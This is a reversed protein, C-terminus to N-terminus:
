PCTLDTYAQRPDTKPLNFTAAEIPTYHQRLVAPLSTQSPTGHINQNAGRRSTGPVQATLGLKERDVRYSSLLQLHPLCGAPLRPAPFTGIPGEAAKTAVVDKLHDEARNELSSSM